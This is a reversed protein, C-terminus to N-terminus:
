WGLEARPCPFSVLCGVGNNNNNNDNNKNMPSVVFVLHNTGKRGLEGGWINRRGEKAYCRLVLDCRVFSGVVFLRSTSRVLRGSRVTM